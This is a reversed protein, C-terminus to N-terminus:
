ATSYPTGHRVFGMENGAVPTADTKRVVLLMVRVTVAAAVTATAGSSLALVYRFVPFCPTNTLCFILASCASVFNDVDCQMICYHM